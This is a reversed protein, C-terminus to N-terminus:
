DAAQLTSYVRRDRGAGPSQKKKGWIEHGQGILNKQEPFDKLFDEKISRGGLGLERPLTGVYRAFGLFVSCRVFKLIFLVSFTEEYKGLKKM